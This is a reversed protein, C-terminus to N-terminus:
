YGLATLMIAAIQKVTLSLSVKLSATFLGPRANASPRDSVLSQVVFEAM